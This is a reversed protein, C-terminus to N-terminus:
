PNVCKVFGVWLDRWVLKLLRWTNIVRFSYLDWQIVYEWHLQVVTSACDQLWVIFRWKSVKWNDHVIVYFRRVVHEPRREANVIWERDGSIVFEPRMSSRWSKIGSGTAEHLWHQGKNRWLPIRQWTVTPLPRVPRNRWLPFRQWTVTTSLPAAQMGCICWLIISTM